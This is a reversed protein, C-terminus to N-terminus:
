KRAKSNCDFFIVSFYVYITQFKNSENLNIIVNEMCHYNNFYIYFLVIIKIM